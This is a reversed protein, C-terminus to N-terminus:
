VNTETFIVLLLEKELNKIITEYADPDGGRTTLAKQMKKYYSLDAKIQQQTRM